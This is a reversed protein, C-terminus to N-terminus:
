PELPGQADRSGPGQQGGRPGQEGLDPMATHDRDLHAAPRRGVADCQDRVQEGREHNEHRRQDPEGDGDVRGGLDVLLRESRAEKGEEM